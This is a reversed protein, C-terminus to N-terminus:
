SSAAYPLQPLLLLPLPLPLPFASLLSHLLLPPLLPLLPQQLLPPLWLRIDTTTVAAVAAADAAVVAAFAVTAATITLVVVDAAIALVVVTAAIAVVVVTAVDFTATSFCAVQFSLLWALWPM